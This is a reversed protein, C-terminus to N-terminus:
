RVRALLKTKTELALRTRGVHQTSGNLGVRQDLVLLPLKLGLVRAPRVIWDLAASFFRFFTSFTGLSRLHGRWGKNETGSM